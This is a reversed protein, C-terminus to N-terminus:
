FKSLREYENKFYDFYVDDPSPLRIGWESASEAQVKNLFDTMSATNLKSTGGVVIVEEGKIMTKRSLFKTCYYDHVDQKLTGTEHEICTFWMWMLANQDLTRKRVKRKIELIYEGNKLLSFAYKLPHSFRSIIGNEKVFEITM